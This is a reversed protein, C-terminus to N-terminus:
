SPARKAPNVHVGYTYRIPAASGKHDKNTKDLRVTFPGHVSTVYGDKVAGADGPGGSMARKRGGSSVFFQEFPWNKFEAHDKSDSSKFEIGCAAGKAILEPISIQWRVTDGPRCALRRNVPELYQIAYGLRKDGASESDTSEITSKKPPITVEKVELAVTYEATAAPISNNKTQTAEAPM